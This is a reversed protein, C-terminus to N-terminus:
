DEDTDDDCEVLWEQEELVGAVLDAIEENAMLEADYREGETPETDWEIHVYHKGPQARATYVCVADCGFHKETADIVMGLLVDISEAPDFGGFDFGAFDDNIEFKIEIKNM